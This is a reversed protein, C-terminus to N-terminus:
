EELQFLDNLFTFIKFKVKIPIDDDEGDKTEKDILIEDYEEQTLVYQLQEKSEM